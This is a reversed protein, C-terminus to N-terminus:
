NKAFQLCKLQRWSRTELTLEVGSYQKLLSICNNSNKPKALNTTASYREKARCHKGSIQRAFLSIRPKILRGILKEDRYFRATNM